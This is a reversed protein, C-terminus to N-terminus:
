HRKSEELALIANGTAASLGFDKLTKQIRRNKTNKHNLSPPKYPTQQTSLSVMLRGM